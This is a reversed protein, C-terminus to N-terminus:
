TNRMNSNADSTISGGIVQGEISDIIQKSFNLLNIRISINRQSQKATNYQAQTIEAM